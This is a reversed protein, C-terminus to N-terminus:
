AGAEELPIPSPVRELLQLIEQSPQAVGLQECLFIARDLRAQANFAHQCEYWAIQKPSSALAFSREGDRVPVFEDHRAFQFFLHSPAAQGLYHCADLPALAALYAQYEEPPTQQRQEVLLPHTTTQLYESLAYTGAMLVFATLRHEIGALVAGLNASYSHGVYGLHEFTLPFRSTLVDAGRRVEVIAQLDGQPIEVLPPESADPRRFPADLCLSVVDLRALVLAEEVFEERNGEGWHGFIVGARPAQQSPFILYASVEGGRPSAFTIDQVTTGDQTRESLVRLDLPAQQDYQFASPDLM